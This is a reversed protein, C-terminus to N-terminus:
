NTTNEVETSKAAQALRGGWLQLLERWQPRAEPKELEIQKLRDLLGNPDAGAPPQSLYGEIPTTMTSDRSLDKESLFNAVLDGALQVNAKELCIALLGAWVAEKEQESQASETAAKAYVLTQQSNNGAAYLQALLVRVRALLSTKNEAQAKQEALTFFAIRQDASLKDALPAEGVRPVWVALVDAGSRNFIKLMAQWAPESEGQVGIKATLWDLDIPEGVEAALGILRARIAPSPDNPLDKRLRRLAAAKDINALGDVATLRVADAKESLGQEFLPRFQQIAEARCVSRPDCLGAMAGLLDGRLGNEAAEVAQQHREVLAGLYKRTEDPTLGDQLLLKRVVDAGTRAKRPDSDGLFRVAWELTQRRVDQSVEIGSNPLSAYYSAGGLAAVLEHQIAEDTEVELLELLRASSNLEVMLSLLRATRLRVQRDADGALDLLTKQLEESLKPKSTGRKLEDLRDLAWLRLAPESAKLRETLFDNRATEDAISAYWRNLIAFYRQQWTDSQSRLNRIEAESHVLRDRLYAETEQQQLENEAAEGPSLGMATLASRAAAAVSSDQSGLLKILKLTARKDPSLRLAYVANTRIKSPLDNSDVIREIDGQIEDYSFMLMAEAALRALASDEVTALISVLPGVFEEPKEPQRSDGRARDLAVCVAARAGPNETQKLAQLLLQRAAPEPRFLLVSAASIRQAANENDFLHDRILALEPDTEAKPAADKPETPTQPRAWTCCGWLALVWVVVSLSLRLRM